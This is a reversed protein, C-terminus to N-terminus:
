FLCRHNRRALGITRILDTLNKVNRLVTFGYACVQDIWNEEPDIQFDYQKMPHSKLWDRNWLVQEQNRKAVKRDVPSRDSDSGRDYAHSLLWPISYLSQHHPEESWIIELERDKINVSLPSPAEQQQSIDFIKQFSNPERCQPCPCNDRLWIYHFRKGELTFFSSTTQHSM